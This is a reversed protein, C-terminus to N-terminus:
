MANNPRSAVGVMRVVEKGDQELVVVPDGSNRLDVRKVLVQGSALYDGVSVYRSSAEDPVKVILSTKGGVQVVGSIEIAEALSLPPPANDPLTVPPLQHLDVAGSPPNSQAPPASEAATGPPLASVTVTPLVPNANPSGPASVLPTVSAASLNQKPVITPTVALVAFPDPRGGIAQPLRELAPTPPILNPVPLLKGAAAPPTLPSAFPQVAGAKGVLDTKPGTALPPQGPQAGLPKITQQACGAVWLALGLSSWRHWRM